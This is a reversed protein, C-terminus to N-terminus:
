DFPGKEGAKELVFSLDVRRPLGDLAWAGGAATTTAAGPLPVGDADVAIVSAGALNGGGPGFAFGHGSARATGAAAAGDESACGTLALLATLLLLRMAGDRRECQRM